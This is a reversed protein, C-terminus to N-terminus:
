GSGMYRKGVNLNDLEKTLIGGFDVWNLTFKIGEFMSDPLAVCVGQNTYNWIHM